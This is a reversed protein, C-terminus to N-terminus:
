PTLLLIWTLFESERQTHLATAELKLIGSFLTSNKFDLPNILQMEGLYVIQKLKSQNKTDAQNALSFGNWHEIASKWIEGSIKKWWPHTSKSSTIKSCRM